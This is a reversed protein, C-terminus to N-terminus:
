ILGEFSARGSWRKSEPQNSGGRDADWFLPLCVGLLDVTENAATSFRPSNTDPTALLFTPGTVVDTAQDQSGVATTTSASYSSTRLGIVQGGSIVSNIIENGYAPNDTLNGTLILNINSITETSTSSNIISAVGGSGLDISPGNNTSYTFASAGTLFNISGLSFGAGLDDNL